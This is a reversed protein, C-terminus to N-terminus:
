LGLRRKIERVVRDPDASVKSELIALWNEYDTRPIEFHYGGFVFGTMSLGKKRQALVDDAGAEGPPPEELLKLIEQESFGLAEIDIGKEELQEVAAQLSEPDWEALESTRNDLIAARVAEAGRLDKRRVAILEGPKGNVVRIKLGLKRAEEYVGNGARVIGDGDVAISRFAGVQELSSRILARNREGHRRANKPDTKLRVAGGYPAKTKRTELKPNRTQRKRM